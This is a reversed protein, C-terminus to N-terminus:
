WPPVSAVSFTQAIFAQPRRLKEHHIQTCNQHNTSKNDQKETNERAETTFLGSARFRLTLRLRLTLAQPRVFDVNIIATWNLKIESSSRRLGEAM